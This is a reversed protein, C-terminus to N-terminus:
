DSQNADGLLTNRIVAKLKKATEDMETLDWRITHRHNTDFHVNETQDAKCIYIVPKGLGEAFGSEWYAGANDDSLDALLFRCRRIEDEIVSDILGAKQVVTRLEYGTQRVAPRLCNEFINDLEPNSFRRAFFAFRSAIQAHRLQDVRNWGELTLYATARGASSKLGDTWGNSALTEALWKVDKSDTVGVTAILVELSYDFDVTAGPRGDAKESLWLLLNDAAEIPSPLSRTSLSAFFEDTLFPPTQQGQMKRVLHSALARRKPEPFPLNLDDVATRSIRFQGCAPCNVFEPRGFDMKLINHNTKGCVPCASASSTEAVDTSMKLDLEASQNCTRNPNLSSRAHTATLLSQNV